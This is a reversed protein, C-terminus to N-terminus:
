GLRKEGKMYGKLSVSEEPSEKYRLEMRRKRKMPIM